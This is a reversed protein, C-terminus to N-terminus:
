DASDKEGRDILVSPTWALVADFLWVQVHQARVFSKEEDKRYKRKREIRYSIVTQFLLSQKHIHM